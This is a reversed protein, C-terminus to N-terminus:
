GGYVKYLKDVTAKDPKGTVDIGEAQQFARIAARSQPGLIGDVKGLYYGLNRLRHQIGTPSDHPDLSGLLLIHEEEGEQLKLVVRQTSDPIVEDIWGDGDTTGSLTQNDELELEFAESARPKNHRTLRLRLRVPGTSLYFTKSTDTAVNEEREERKPVVLKDGPLLAHPNSRLDKLKANDPHDWITAPDFGNAHAISTLCDGQKLTVTPM